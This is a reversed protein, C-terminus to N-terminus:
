TLLVNSGSRGDLYLCFESKIMHEKHALGDWARNAEDVAKKHNWKWGPEEEARTWTYGSPQHCRIKGAAAGSTGAGTSTTEVGNSIDRLPRKGNSNAQTPAKVDSPLSSTNRQESSPPSPITTDSPPDQQTPPTAVGHDSPPTTAPSSHSAM